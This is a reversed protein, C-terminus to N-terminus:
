KIEVSGEVWEKQYNNNPSKVMVAECKVQEWTMKNKAWYSIAGPNEVFHPMTDELVSRAMDGDFKDVYQNARDFAIISVPLYWISGDSFSIYYNKGLMAQAQEQTVESM